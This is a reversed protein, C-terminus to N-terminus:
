KEKPPTSGGDTGGSKSPPAQNGKENVSRLPNSNEGLKTGTLVCYPCIGKDKENLGAETGAKDLRMARRYDKDIDNLINVQDKLDFKKVGSMDIPEATPTPTTEPQPPGGASAQSSAAPEEAHTLAYFCFTIVLFIKIM